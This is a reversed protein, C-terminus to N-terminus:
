NFYNDVLKYSASFNAYSTYYLNYTNRAVFNIDDSGPLIAINTYNYEDTSSITFILNNYWYVSGDTEYTSNNLKSPQATKYVFKVIISNFDIKTNECKSITPKYFLKNNFLATLNDQKFSNAISLYIENFEKSNQEYYINNSENNKYLVIAFPKEVEIYYSKTTNYLTILVASIGLVIILAISIVLYKVKHSKKNTEMKNVKMM